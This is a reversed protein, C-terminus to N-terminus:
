EDEVEKEKNIQQQSQPGLRAPSFDELSLGEPFTSCYKWDLYDILVSKDNLFDHVVTLAFYPHDSKNEEKALSLASIVLKWQSGTRDYVIKYVPLMSDADVYLVQRSYLAHPDKSSLELRMLNRPVYLVEVPLWSAAQPHRRSYLNWRSAMEKQRGAAVSDDILVCGNSITSAVGVGTSVFPTLATLSRDFHADFIDPKGSWTFLDDLAFPTAAFGDMRNIGGIQRNQGIAPSHLWVVDEFGGTFRFTLWAYHRLIQPQLVEIWERFLQGSTQEASLSHPYVRRVGLTLEATPESNELLRFLLRGMMLGSQGLNTHVNWLVKFALQTSQPDSLLATKDGFLLGSPLAIGDVLAGTKTLLAEDGLTAISLRPWHYPLEKAADMVIAGNRVWPYLEPPILETFETANSESILQGVRDGKVAQPLDAAAAKQTTTLTNWDSDEAWVNQRCAPHTTAVFALLLVTYFLKIVQQTPLGGGTSVRSNSM